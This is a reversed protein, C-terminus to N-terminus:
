CLLGLARRFFTRFETNFVTYIVPNLASNVYGLWTVISVLRRPIPCAPCLARTVHVVFFPTWCVLFAGVVVPLVRMAKRERGTIKARKRPARASPLAQPLAQPQPPYSVTQIPGHPSYGAPGPGEPEPGPFRRRPGPQAPRSPRRAAGPCMSRRLKARRAEEWTRLRRFMACYLVLMLPCPLFFSCVSSYVVYNRSELQCVAPNRGPVDNLGFLVPSAVAFALGWVTAILALQRRGLQQRSYNLPVSVAIFRDVGIACLNFISATCLMVDMTMLADCLVTSLAWVGGQYESYVFLPLVLLALLLDAAALSVIFFNTPTQLAREAAVSVCVLANGALVTVMLLVGGVLAGVHLEPAGLGGRSNGLLESANPFSRNGLM